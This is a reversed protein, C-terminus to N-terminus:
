GAVLQMFPHPSQHYTRYRTFICLFYLYSSMLVNLFIRWYDIYLSGSLHMRIICPCMFSTTCIFMTLFIYILTVFINPTRYENLQHIVCVVIPASRQIFNDYEKSSEHAFQVIDKIDGIDKPLGYTRKAHGELMNEILIAVDDNQPTIYPNPNTWLSTVGSASDNSLSGPFANRLASGDDQQWAPCVFLFRLSRRSAVVSFLWLLCCYIFVSVSISSLLIYSVFLFLLHLFPVKVQIVGNNDDPVSKEKLQPPHM